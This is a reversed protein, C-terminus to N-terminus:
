SYVYLQSSHLVVIQEDCVHAYLLAPLVNGWHDNCSISAVSNVVVELKDEHKKWELETTKGELM